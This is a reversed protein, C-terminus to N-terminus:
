NTGNLRIDVSFNTASFNSATKLIITASVIQNPALKSNERNWSCTLSNRIYTPSINAPTMSLTLTATGTNKVYVTRNVAGGANLQGWNIYSIKHTCASDSYVSLSVTKATSYRHTAASVLLSSSMLIFFIIGLAIVAKTVGQGLNKTTLGLEVGKDRIPIKFRFILVM